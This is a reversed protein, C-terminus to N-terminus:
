TNLFEFKSRFQSRVLIVVKIFDGKIVTKKEFSENHEIKNIMMYTKYQM